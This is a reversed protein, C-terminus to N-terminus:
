EWSIERKIVRAPNGAILCNPENFIGKVVSNAAIVCGDAVVTGKYVYSSCGVWVHNGIQINNESTKKGEYYINHFDEDLFQCGWSIVCSDGIELSHSIIFDTHANVYGGKGVKLSAGKAIDLRCGRGVSFDGEFIARGEIRLFTKVSNSVFGVYSLGILLKGGTTINKVGIIKAKPHLWINKNRMLNLIRNLLINPLYVLPIKFERINSIRM